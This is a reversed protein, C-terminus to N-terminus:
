RKGRNKLVAKLRNPTGFTETKAEYDAGFLTPGDQGEVVARAWRVVLSEPGGHREPDSLIREAMERNGAEYANPKMGTGLGRALGRRQEL